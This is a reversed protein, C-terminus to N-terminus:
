FWGMIATWLGWTIWIQIFHFWQDQILNITHKNAKCNDIYYHVMLNVLCLIAYALCYPGMFDRIYVQQLMPAMVVFAWEFSHATLAAKYDNRYNKYPKENTAKREWWGRCKMNALIGQLYYDAVVHLFMMEFLMILSKM